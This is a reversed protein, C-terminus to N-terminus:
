PEGADLGAEIGDGQHTREDAADGAILVVVVEVLSTL